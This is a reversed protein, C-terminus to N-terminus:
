PSMRSVDPFVGLRLMTSGYPVLEITEEEGPLVVPHEPLDPTFRDKVSEGKLEDKSRAETYSIREDLNDSLEWKIRRVPVRIKVAAPNKFFGDGADGGSSVVEAVHAALAYNFPGAPRLNWCKFDPNASKKGNMNAHVVKDETRESPIPYAFLLPGRCVVTGQSSNAFAQAPHKLGLTKTDRSEVLHRSPLEEFRVEMPFDLEITDGDSFKRAITAFKGPAAPAISEGNVKVSAGKKCWGPVRYTFASERPEKVSFRFVIKGDFPYRTEESIEAWGFDVESPGYLAAVPRGEADKLWMRSIFNPVIRNIQGACCETEHTPRYQMWTMGYRLPNHNSDSTCIFQNLNSFYQLSRFDDAVAGFAANYVCREIKDAYSADGTAELFYGLSWSYDSVDCTEHGWYVSNGRVYETSEPCGDPLIHDRVLKREVNVAQNLYEKKGTYAYLILPIKLEECYTAGHIFIPEDSECKAPTIDGSWDNIAVKRLWAQEALELLKADGTKGYTWLMGEVSVTNRSLSVTKSNYLRYYKALASPIRGDGTADYKAKMARFFVAMPWMVYGKSLKYKKRHWTCEDGLQGKSGPHELTYDIGAEGKNIFTKDGLAYGLRLIGDTYYATQEYRWWGAGHKGMRPISGAWLCSDYPYSLAEPHGSLGDAQMRCARLLWGAPRTKSLMGDEFKAFPAMACCAAASVMSLFALTAKAKEPTMNKNKEPTM